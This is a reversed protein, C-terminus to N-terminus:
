ALDGLRKDELYNVACTLDGRPSLGTTFSVVDVLNRFHRRLISIEPLMRSKVTSYSHYQMHVYVPALLDLACRIPLSRQM